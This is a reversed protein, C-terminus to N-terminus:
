FGQFYWAIVLEMVIHVTLMWIVTLLIEPMFEAVM